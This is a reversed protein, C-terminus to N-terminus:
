IHILSLAVLALGALTWALRLRGSRRVLAWATLIILPGAFAGIWALLLVGGPGAM